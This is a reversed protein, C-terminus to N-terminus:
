IDWTKINTIFIHITPKKIVNNKIKDIQEM